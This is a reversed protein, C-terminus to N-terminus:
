PYVYELPQFGYRDTEIIAKFILFTTLANGQDDIDCGGSAGNYDVSGNAAIERLQNWPTRPDIKTDGEDPRSVKRINENVARRFEDLNSLSTTEAAKEIALAYIFGIDYFQANYSAVEQDYAEFLKEAFDEYIPNSPEPAPIAGFNKHWGNIEGVLIEARGLFIDFNYLADSLMFFTSAITNQDIFYDFANMFEAALLADLMCMFIADPESEMLLSLSEEYDQDQYGFEVKTIEGAFQQRFASALEASFMDGAQVAIAVKKIGMRSARDALIKAQYIDPLILRHFYPSIGTLTDSLSSGSMCAIEFPDAVELVIGLSSSSYASVLGVVNDYSNLIDKAANAATIERDLGGSSRIALKLQKGGLVGGSTNIHDLATRLANERYRGNINDYPLVAGIVIIDNDAPDTSEECSSLAILIFSFVLLLNFNINKKM